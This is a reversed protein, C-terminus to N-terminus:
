QRKDWGSEPPGHMEGMFLVAPSCGALLVGVGVASNAIFPVGRFRVTTSMPAAMILGQEEILESDSQSPM